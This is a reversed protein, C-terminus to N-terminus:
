QPGSRVSLPGNQATIGLLPSFVVSRVPGPGDVFFEGGADTETVLQTMFRAAVRGILDQDPLLPHRQLNKLLSMTWKTVNVHCREKDIDRAERSLLTKISIVDVNGETRCVCLEGRKAEIDALYSLGSISSRMFEAYSIFGLRFCAEDQAQREATPILFNRQHYKRM